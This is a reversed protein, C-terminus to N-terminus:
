SVSAGPVSTYGEWQRTRPVPWGQQGLVNFATGAPDCASAPEWGARTLFPKGSVVPHAPAPWHLPSAPASPLSPVTHTSPLVLSRWTRSFNLTGSAYSPCFIFGSLHVCLGKIDDPENGPAQFGKWIILVLSEEFDRVYDLRCCILHLFAHNIDHKEVM